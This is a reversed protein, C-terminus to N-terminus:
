YAQYEATEPTLATRKQFGGQAKAPARVLSKLNLTTSAVGHSSPLAITM